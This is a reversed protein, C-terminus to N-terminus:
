ATTDVLNGLHPPNATMQVTQALLDAVQRQSDNALRVALLSIQSQSAALTAAIASTSEFMTSSYILNKAAILSDLLWYCVAPLLNFVNQKVSETGVSHRV